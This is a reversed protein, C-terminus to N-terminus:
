PLPDPHSASKEPVAAGGEPGRVRRWLPYSATGFWACSFRSWPRCGKCPCKARDAYEEVTMNGKLCSAECLRVVAQLAAVVTEYDEEVTM